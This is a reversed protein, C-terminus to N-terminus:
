HIQAALFNILNLYTHFSFFVETKKIEMVKILKIEIFLHFPFFSFKLLCMQKHLCECIHSASKQKQKKGLKILTLFKKCIETFM